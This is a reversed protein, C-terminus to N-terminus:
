DLCILNIISKFLPEILFQSILVQVAGEQAASQFRSPLKKNQEESDCAFEVNKKRKTTVIFVLRILIEVSGEPNLFYSSRFLGNIIECDFM